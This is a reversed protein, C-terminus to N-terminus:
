RCGNMVGALVGKVIALVTAKKEHDVTAVLSSLLALVRQALEADVESVKREIYDLTAQGVEHAGDLTALAADCAVYVRAKAVDDLGANQVLIQASIAATNGMVEPDTATQRFACGSFLFLVWLSAITAALVGFFTDHRHDEDPLFPTYSM